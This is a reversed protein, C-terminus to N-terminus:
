RSPEAKMGLKEVAAEFAESAETLGGDANDLQNAFNFVERRAGTNDTADVFVKADRTLDDMAEYVRRFSGRLEGVAMGIDTDDIEASPEAREILRRM